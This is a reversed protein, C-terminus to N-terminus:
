NWRPIGKESEEDKKWKSIYVACHEPDDKKYNVIKTWYGSDRLEKSASLAEDVTFFKHLKYDNYEQPVKDKWTKKKVEKETDVRNYDDLVKRYRYPSQLNLEEKSLKTYKEILNKNISFSNGATIKKMVEKKKREIEKLKKERMKEEKSEKKYPFLKYSKYRERQIKQMEAYKKLIEAMNKSNASPM